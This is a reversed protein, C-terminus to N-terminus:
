AARIGVGRFDLQMLGHTMLNRATVVEPRLLLVYLYNVVNIHMPNAVLYRSIARYAREREPGPPTTKAAAAMDYFEDSPKSPNRANPFYTLELTRSPEPETVAMSMMAHHLGAGMSIGLKNPHIAVLKVDLGTNASLQEQIAHAIEEENTAWMIEVTAGEAGAERVLRRAEEPDFPDVDLAPDYGEWGKAFIQYAPGVVGHLTEAAIKNRDLGIWMARRVRVDDLPAKNHNLYVTFDNTGVVSEFRFGRSTLAVGRALHEETDHPPALQAGHYRGAVVEEYRPTSDAITAITLNKVLAADPDWHGEWRTYNVDVTEPIASDISDEQRSVFTFPGTGVPNNSVDTGFAAPSLMMGAPSEALAWIVAPDPASLRLVVHHDDVIEVSDIAELEVAVTSDPEKAREINAKVARADFVTGDQFTVGERLTLRISKGDAAVEYDTALQPGIGVGGGPRMVGRLLSDYVPRLWLVDKTVHPTRHPDLSTLGFSM